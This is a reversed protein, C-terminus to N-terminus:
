HPASVDARIKQLMRVPMWWRLKERRGQPWSAPQPKTSTAPAQLVKAVGCLRDSGVAYYILIEGREIAQPKKSFWIGEHIEPREEWWVAPPPDDSLGVLKLFYAMARDKMM